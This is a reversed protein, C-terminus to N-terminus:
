KQIIKFAKELEEGEILIPAFQEQIKELSIESANGRLGSLIGM